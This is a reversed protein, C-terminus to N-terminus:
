QENRIRKVEELQWEAYENLIKMMEMITEHEKELREKLELILNQSKLLQEVTM